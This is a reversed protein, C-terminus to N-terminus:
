RTPATLQGSGLSRSMQTVFSVCFRKTIIRPMAENTRGIFILTPYKNILGRIQSKVLYYILHIFEIKTIDEYCVFMVVKAYTKWGKEKYTGAVIQFMMDCYYYYIDTILTGNPITMGCTPWLPFRILNWSKLPKDIRFFLWLYSDSSQANITSHALIVLSKILLYNTM